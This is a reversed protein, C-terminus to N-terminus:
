RRVSIRYICEVLVTKEDGWPIQVPGSNVDGSEFRVVVTGDDAGGMDAPIVIVPAEDGLALVRSTVRALLKHSSRPKDDELFTLAQVSILPNDSRASTGGGVRKVRLLGGAGDPPEALVERYNSPIVTDAQAIDGLLVIVGVESDPPAQNNSM